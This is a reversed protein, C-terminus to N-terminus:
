IVILLCLIFMTCYFQRQTRPGMSSTLFLLIILITCAASQMTATIIDEASGDQWPSSVMHIPKAPHM